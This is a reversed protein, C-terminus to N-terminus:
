YPDQTIRTAKTRNRKQSM